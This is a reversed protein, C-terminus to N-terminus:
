KVIAKMDLNDKSEIKAKVKEIEQSTQIKGLLTTSVQAIVKYDLDGPSQTAVVIGVGFKRAEIFLREFSEKCLPKKVPPMWPSVEDIFYGCQLLNNEVSEQNKKM